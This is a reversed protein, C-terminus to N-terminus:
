NTSKTQLGLIWTALSRAEQESVQTQAPMPIAGWRGRGGNRISLVLYDISAEGGSAYRDAVDVFAPGVRKKEVQHCGLCVKQRALQQGQEFTLTDSAAPSGALALLVAFWSTRLLM